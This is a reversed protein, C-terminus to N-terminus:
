KRNPASDKILAASPDVVVHALCSFLHLQLLEVRRCQNKPEWPLWALSVSPATLCFRGAQM